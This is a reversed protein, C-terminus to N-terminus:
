EKTDVNKTKRKKITKLSVKSKDLWDVIFGLNERALAGEIVTYINGDEREIRGRIKTLLRGLHNTGGDQTVGWFDDHTSGEILKVNGTTLLKIKLDIHQAFKDELLREMVHLKKSDWNEIVTLGKGLRKAQRPTFTKLIELQKERDVTKSAQYAHELTPFTEMVTKITPDGDEGVVEYSILSKQPRAFFNSLFEFKGSFSSIDGNEDLGTEEKKEEPEKAAELIKDIDDFNDNFM